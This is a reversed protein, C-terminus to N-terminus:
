FQELVPHNHFLCFSKKFHVPIDLNQPPPRNGLLPVVVLSVIDDRLQTQALERMQDRYLLESWTGQQGDHAM